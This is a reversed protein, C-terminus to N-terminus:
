TNNQNRKVRATIKNTITSFSPVIQQSVLLSDDPGESLKCNKSRYNYALNKSQRLTWCVSAHCGSFNHCTTTGTQRGSWGVVPLLHTTAALDRETSSHNPDKGEREVVRAFSSCDFTITVPLRRSSNCIGFRNPVRTLLDQIVSSCPNTM